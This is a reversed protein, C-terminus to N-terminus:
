VMRGKTKGKTAIGDARKSASSVKGGKKFQKTLRIGGGTIEGKTGASKSKSAVADLYAELDLNKGLQKRTLFRGGAGSGYKDKGGGGMIQLSGMGAKGLLAKDEDKLESTPKEMLMDSLSPGTPNAM